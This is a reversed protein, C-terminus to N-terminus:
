LEETVAKVAWMCATETETIAVSTIRKVNPNDAFERCENLLDIVEAYKSKLQGVLDHNAPNHKARVAKQGFTLEAM